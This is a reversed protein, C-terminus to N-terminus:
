VKEQKFIGKGTFLLVNLTIGIVLSGLLFVLNQLSNKNYIFWDFANMYVFTSVIVWVAVTLLIKLKQNM